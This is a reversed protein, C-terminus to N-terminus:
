QQLPFITQWKYFPLLYNEILANKSYHKQMHAAQLGVTHRPLSTGPQIYVDGAVGRRWEQEVGAGSRSWEQEM